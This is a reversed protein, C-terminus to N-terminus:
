LNLVSCAQQQARFVQTRTHRAPVVPRSHRKHKKGGVHLAWQADNGLWPQCSHCFVPLSQPPQTTPPRVAVASADM